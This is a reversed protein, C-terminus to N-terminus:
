HQASDAKPASGSPANAQKTEEELMRVTEEVYEADKLPAQNGDVGCYVQLIEVLHDLALPVGSGPAVTDAVIRAGPEGGRFEMSKRPHLPDSNGDNKGGDVKATALAADWAKQMRMALPHPLTRVAERVDWFSKPEARNDKLVTKVTVLTSPQQKGQLPLARFEVTMMVVPSGESSIIAGRTMQSAFHWYLDNAEHREDPAVTRLADKGVPAPSVPAPAQGAALGCVMLFLVFARRKM